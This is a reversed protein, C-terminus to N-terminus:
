VKDSKIGISIAQDASLNKVEIIDGNADLLQTDVITGSVTQNTEEAHPDYSWKIAQVSAVATKLVTALQPITVNFDDTDVQSTTNKPDVGQIVCGLGDGMNLTKREAVALKVMNKIITRVGLKAIGRLRKMLNKRKSGGMEGSNVLSQLYSNANTLADVNDSEDM